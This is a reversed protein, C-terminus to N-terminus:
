IVNHHYIVSVFFISLCTYSKYSSTHNDMIKHIYFNFSISLISRNPSLDIQVSGRYLARILLFVFTKYSFQLSVELECEM